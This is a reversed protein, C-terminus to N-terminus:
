VKKHNYDHLTEFELSKVNYTKEIWDCLTGCEKM